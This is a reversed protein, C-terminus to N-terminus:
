PGWAPAFTIPFEIPKDETPLGATLVAIEGTLTDLRYIVVWGQGWEVYEALFAIYRENPSWSLQRPTNFDGIMISKPPVTYGPRPAPEYLWKWTGSEIDCIAIGTREITYKDAESFERDTIYAIQKGDYLWQGSRGYFLNSRLGTELDIIDPGALLGGSPSWDVNFSYSDQRISTWVGDGSMDLIFLAYEQWGLMGALALKTGDPSWTLDEIQIIWSPISYRKQVLISCDSAPKGPKEMCSDLITQADIICIYQNEDCAVAIHKGDRSWVGPSSIREILKSRFCGNGDMIYLDYYGIEDSPLRQTTVQLFLIHGIDQQASQCDLDYRVARLTPTVEAIFTAQPLPTATQVLAPAPATEPSPLTAPSPQACATLGIVIVVFIQLHKINM